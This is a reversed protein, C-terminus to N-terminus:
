AMGFLRCFGRKKARGACPAAVSSIDSFAGYAVKELPSIPKSPSVLSMAKATSPKSSRRHV